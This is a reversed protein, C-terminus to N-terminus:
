APAEVNMNGAIETAAELTIFTRKKWKASEEPFDERYHGGRSEERQLAAAAMLKATLRDKEGYELPSAEIIDIVIQSNFTEPQLASLGFAATALASGASSDELQEPAGFEPVAVPEVADLPAVSDQTSVSVVAGALLAAAFLAGSIWVTQGM